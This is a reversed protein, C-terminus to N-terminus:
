RVSACLMMAFFSVLFSCFSIPKTGAQNQLHITFNRQKANKQANIQTKQTNPANFTTKRRQQTQLRLLQGHRRNPTHSPQDGLASAHNNPLPTLNEIQFWRFLYARKAGSQCSLKQCVNNGKECVASNKTTNSRHHKAQRFKLNSENGATKHWYPAISRFWSSSRRFASQSFHAAKHQTASAKSLDLTKGNSLAAPSGQRFRSLQPM